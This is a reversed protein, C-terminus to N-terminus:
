ASNQNSNSNIRSKQIAKTKFDLRYPVITLRTITFSATSEKMKFGVIIFANIELHFGMGVTLSISNAILRIKCLSLDSTQFEVNLTEAM